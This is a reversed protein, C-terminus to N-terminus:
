FVKYYIKLFAIVAFCIAGGAFFFVDARKKARYEADTVYVQQNHNVAILRTRGSALDPTRPMHASYNLEMWINTGLAGFFYAIALVMVTKRLIVM